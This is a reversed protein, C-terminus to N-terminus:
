PPLLPVLNTPTIAPIPSGTYHPINRTVVYDAGAVVAASVQLGDEFDPMGLRLAHKVAATGAAVVQAFETLETIFQLALVPNHRLIYNINAITHWAVFTNRERLECWDLVQKSDGYHPQRQTAVDLLVDSDVLLNM